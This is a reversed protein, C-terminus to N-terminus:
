SPKWKACCWLICRTLDCLSWMFCVVLCQGCPHAAEVALPGVTAAGAAVDVKAAYHLRQGTAEVAAVRAAFAEDHASLGAMFEEVTCERLSEPVLSEIAMGSLEVGKMGAVRALIVAKRAVDMGNLDDRPDPETYGLAKAEAVAASLTSAGGAVRGLVFALTGSLVGEISRISHSSAVLDKLTGIVPLGAGVTTEHLLRAPPAAAAATLLAQYGEEPGAFILKNAAVVSIGAALWGAYQAPVAASATVDVIVPVVGQKASAALLREGLAQFDVPEPEADACAGEPPAFQMTNSRVLAFPALGIKQMATLLATGVGGTFGVVAVLVTPSAMSSLPRRRPPRPRLIAPHMASPAPQHSIPSPRRRRARGLIVAPQHSILVSLCVSQQSSVSLSVSLSDDTLM